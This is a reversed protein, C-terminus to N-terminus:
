SAATLSSHSFGATDPPGPISGPALLGHWLLAAVPLIRGAPRMRVLLKPPCRQALCLATLYFSRQPVLCRGAGGQGGDEQRCPGGGGAQVCPYWAARQHRVPEHNARGPAPLLPCPCPPRRRDAAASAAPAAPPLPRQRHRAAPGQLRGGAGGMYPRCLQPTCPLAGSCPKSMIPWLTRRRSPSHVQYEHVNLFRQQQLQAARTRGAAESARAVARRLM